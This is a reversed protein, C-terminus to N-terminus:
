QISKFLRVDLTDTLPKNRGRKGTESGLMLFNKKIELFDLNERLELGIPQLDGGRRGIWYAILYFRTQKDNVVILFDDSM